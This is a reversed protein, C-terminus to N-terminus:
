WLFGRVQLPRLRPRPRRKRRTKQKEDQVAGQRLANEKGGNAKLVADTSHVLALTFIAALAKQTPQICTGEETSVKVPGKVTETERGKEQVLATVRLMHLASDPVQAAGM